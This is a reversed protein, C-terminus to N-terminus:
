PLTSVHKKFIINEIIVLHQNQQQQETALNHRVRQSGMSQLVGPERDKVVEPTHEFEHGNLCHHWRITKDETAEYTLFFVCFVRRFLSTEKQLVLGRFLLVSCLVFAEEPSVAGFCGPFVM